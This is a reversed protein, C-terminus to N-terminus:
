PEFYVDKLWPVLTASQINGKVEPKVLYYNRDHWLPIWVADQVILREAQRYLAIREDLDQEVRAQELLRDVQDSAYQSHNEDSESHFLLDLFNHPDPYDAMWGLLFMPYRSNNVEALYTPWDVAEVEVRINLTEEWMALLARTSRPLGTIDGNVHLTLPPLGKTGYSSAALLARAKAPDYDLGQLSPDYGPMEPPLIGRAPVAMDKLVVQCLKDRDVARSLAERVLPDDFPPMTVNFGIYEINLAPVVVLEGSLPNTPDQAREIDFLGVNAIDLQGNEYMTTPIGGGFLFRVRELKPPERYFRENRALELGDRDIRELRFPGTGNPQSFAGEQEVTHRDVVFSTPYTLKALFYSKPADIEIELILDELVRVGRITPAVGALRERVGVIDGLYSFAVPSGLEPSCARELSYKIDQATVPRGDHFFADQRLYFTYTRGDASIQWREAVDPAVELEQDLTVLGSFIELVYTASTTDQVMAPDLTNPMGGFLRLTDQSRQAMPQLLDFTPDQRAYFFAAAGCCLCALIFAVIVIFLPAYSRKRQRSM